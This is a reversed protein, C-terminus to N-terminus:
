FNKQAISFALVLLHKTLYWCDFNSELLLMSFGSHLLSYRSLFTDHIIWSIILHKSCLYPSRISSASLSAVLLILSVVSPSLNKDCMQKYKLVSGKLQMSEWGNLVKMLATAVEILATGRLSVSRTKTLPSIWWSTKSLHTLLSLEVSHWLQSWWTLVDGWSCHWSM